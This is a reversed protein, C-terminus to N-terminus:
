IHEEKQNILNLIYFYHGWRRWDGFALPRYFKGDVEVECISNGNDVFDLPLAKESHFIKAGEEALQGLGYNKIIRENVEHLFFGRTWRATIPASKIYRGEVLTLAYTHVKIAPTARKFWPDRTFEKIIKPINM